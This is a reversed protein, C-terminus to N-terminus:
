VARRVAEVVREVDLLILLEDPLKFVGRITDRALDRLTDPPLEFQERSVECVDGIRDVLVSVAGQETRLVVSMPLTGSPADPMGLRRRLDIATVIQGRLNILGRVMPSALPVRTMPQFRLVEQVREVEIAFRHSNVNFTCLQQLENSM